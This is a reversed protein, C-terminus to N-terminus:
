VGPNVMVGNADFQYSGAAMLDNTKTVFYSRGTVLEGTGRVYYFKGGIEILGAYTLKGDEYYYLKGNEEYIGNKVTETEPIIMKGDAAFEFSGEEMLGNTKTIWYTRNNVVEGTGRVYYFAGDIEILGAYTRLGKEYYYLSGDEAVIGDTLLMKGEADFQYSAEDMLGNTKTIWYSRNNVVEGTGRVYYYSGNYEMLGAYTRVGEVYYYLSGDEAYIGNKKEASPWVIRGEADFTYNGEAVPEGNREVGNLHSKSIWYDRSVVLSGDSRAYYYEGDDGVFLGYHVKVGDIYYYKVGNDLHVGNKSTDEDHIIVGNEDFTYGWLVLYGNTIEAWHGGNRQALYEGTCTESDCNEMGCGFYYYHIHGDDLTTKVLGKNAVAIGNEVYYLDGNNATYIGTYDSLFAGTAHDFAYLVGEIETIDCVVTADAGAYYMKGSGDTVLEYKDNVCFWGMMSDPGVVYSYWSSNPRGLWGTFATAEYIEVNKAPMTFPIDIRENINAGYWWEHDFWGKHTEIDIYYREPIFGVVTEGYAYTEQLMEGLGYYWTVTFTKPTMHGILHLDQAPMIEPLEHYTTGNPDMWYDFDYGELELTYAPFASGYVAQATYVPGENNDFGDVTYYYVTYTIPTWNAVFTVEKTTMAYPFSAETGDVTWSLTNGEMTPATFGELAVEGNWAIQTEYVVDEGNVFKVNYKIAEDEAFQATYAGNVTATAPVEADWGTFKYTWKADAAKTAEPATISDGYAYEEVTEQGEIIWTIFVKDRAWLAKLNLGGVPMTEPFEIVNVGDISWGLFTHGAKTPAAPATISSKYDATISEVASGGDADFTITYEAPTITIELYLDEAPMTSPIDEIGVVKYGEPATYVPATTATGYLFSQKLTDVEEDDVNEVVSWYIHYTNVTWDGYVNVASAPMTEPMADTNWGNWTNGEKTPDTIKALLQAVYEATLETGYTIDFTKYATADGESAFFNLKFTDVTWTAYVTMGNLPMTTLDVPNGEADTWGAFTYGEKVVAIASVKETIDTAYGATVTGVQEDGNMFTITYEIPAFQAYLKMDELLTHTYPFVMDTGDAYKYGVFVYGEPTLYEHEGNPDTYNFLNIHNFEEITNYHENYRMMVPWNLQQDPNLSSYVRLEHIEGIWYATVEQDYAPMTAPITFVSFNADEWCRFEYGYYSGLATNLAALDEETIPDGYNKTISYTFGDDLDFYPDEKFTITYQNITWIGTLVVNEAPITTPIEKDWGDFTYGTKETVPVKTMDVDTGYGGKIQGIIDTGDMFTITYEIPTETWTATYTAEGDVATLTKDWGAFTYSYYADSAKEPVKGEADYVPTEGYKTSVVKDEQGDVVFTIDYSRLNPTFTATYSTNGTAEAIAPTWGAFTYTYQATDAKTPDAYTPTDGHNVTTTGLTNGADDLWTILYQNINWLAVFEVNKAPMTMGDTYGQWGAFNYGTKSPAAPLIIEAGYNVTSISITGNVNWSVTYSKPSSSFQATYTAEGTVATVAPTWGTFSYTYEDSEAKAPTGQFAPTEGYAFTSTTTKGDVIWTITYTKKQSTYQATYTTEETVAPLADTTGYTNGDSDKWGTFTYDWENTDALSFAPATPATGHAVATTKDVSGDGNTDWSISYSITSEAFQAEYEMAKTAPALAPSWGAFTYKVGNASAKTPEANPYVPTEGHEVITEATMKGDVIWTITYTNKEWVAYLTINAEPASAGDAYSTGSQDAKDNWGKFTYGEIAFKNANLKDGAVVTQNAMSGTVTTGTPNNANFQVTYSAKAWQAYLTVDDSLTINVNEGYVDGSGDAKTNWAEFTSDEKTFTNVATKVTATGTEGLDVTVSNMTGQGGNADYTITAETKRWQAYLTTNQSITIYDGVAFEKGTGDAKTNWGTLIQGEVEYNPIEVSLPQGNTAINQYNITVPVTAGTGDNAAFTLVPAITIATTVWKDLVTDYVYTTYQADGNTNVTTGDANTLLAAGVSIDTTMGLGTKIAESQKINTTNSPANNMLIVVGTKGVSPIAAGATSAYIQGQVIAAGNVNIKADSLTTRKVTTGNAVTFAIPQMPKGFCYNGWNDADMLYVKYGSNIMLYAERGVNVEAGPQLMLDQAVTTMGSNINVSINHNLPLVFNSTNYGMLSIGNIGANGQIDIILRDSAADYRKTATAGAGLSFMAGASGIFNLSSQIVEKGYIAAHCTLSAGSHIVEPVEVNQVYYQNFPFVGSPVIISTIGGGRYDSIQMKEYISAGSNATVMGNGVIYGWAYLTGGNNITIDSNNGTKICGYYYHPVGGFNIGGHSCRHRAGVELTGNVTLDVGDAMTLTVYAVPAKFAPSNTGSVVEPSAGYATLEANYPILLSIGGPITASKTLTTSTMLKITKDGAQAAPIAQELDMWIKGGALWHGNESTRVFKASVQMNDRSPRLTTNAVTSVVTDNEDVWALFKYGSAPTANVAVGTLFTASVATNASITTGSVSVSGNTGPKITMSRSVNEIIQIESITLSAVDGVGSTSDNNDGNGSEPSSLKITVTGNAALSASQYSGALVTMETGGIELEGKDSSYNFVILSEVGSNNTLTITTSTKNFSWKPNTPCSSYSAEAQASATITTGTISFSGLDADQANNTPISASVGITGIAGTETRSGAAHAEMPVLAFVMIVALLLALARREVHDIM